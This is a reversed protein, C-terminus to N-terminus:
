TPTKSKGGIGRNGTVRATDKTQATQQAQPKSKLVPKQRLPLHPLKRRAKQPPVPEDTDDDGPPRVDVTSSAPASVNGALRTPLPIPRSSIAGGVIQALQAFFNSSAEVLLRLAEDGDGDSMAAILAARNDPRTFSHPGFFELDRYFAYPIEIDVHYKALWLKRRDYVTSHGVGSAIALKYAWGKPDYEETARWAKVIPDDLKLFKRLEEPTCKAISTLRLARDIMEPILWEAFSGRRLLRNTRQLALVYIGRELWWANQEPTGKLFLTAPLQTDLFTLSDKRYNKLAHQAEEGM